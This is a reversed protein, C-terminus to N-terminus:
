YGINIITKLIYPIDSVSSFLFIKRDDIKPLDAKLAGAYFIIDCDRLLALSEPKMPTSILLLSDEARQFASIDDRLLYDVSEHLLEDSGVIGVRIMRASETEVNKPNLQKFAKWVMSLMRGTSSPTNIM